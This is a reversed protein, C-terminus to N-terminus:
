NNKNFKIFNSIFLGRHAGLGANMYVAGGITGPVCYLFELGGYGLKNIANILIPIKTAAGVRFRGDDSIKTIESSMKTLNVVYPFMRENILVNSGNAIIYSKEIQYVQKLEEVSEPFYMVKAQGGIRMHSYKSLNVNNKVIM